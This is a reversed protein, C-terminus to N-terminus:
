RKGGRVGKALRMRGGALARTVIASIFESRPVPYAWDSLERPYWYTWGAEKGEEKGGKGRGEM